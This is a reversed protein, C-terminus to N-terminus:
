LYVLQLRRLRQKSADHLVSALTGAKEIISAGTDMPVGYCATIRTANSMVILLLAAASLTNEAPNLLRAKSM